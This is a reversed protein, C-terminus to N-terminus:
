RPRRHMGTSCAVTLQVRFVSCELSLAVDDLARKPPEYAAAPQAVSHVPSGGRKVGEDVEDDKDQAHATDHTGRASTSGSSSRAKTMSGHSRPERFWFVTSIGSRWSFPLIKGGIGNVKTFFDLM